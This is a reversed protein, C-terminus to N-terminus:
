TQELHRPAAEVSPLRDPRPAHHRRIGRRSDAAVVHLHRPLGLVAKRADPFHDTLFGGGNEKSFIGTFGWESDKLTGIDLIDVVLLDGPEAGEVEIPGSLYHVKSLDVVERVDSANNNYNIQGGTWDVCEVRFEDGPKCKAVMPIDYHWRNHIVDQQDAPTNIDVSILPKRTAGPKVITPYSDQRKRSRLRTGPIGRRSKTIDPIITRRMTKSYQTSTQPQIVQFPPSDCRSCHGQDQACCRCRARPHGRSHHKVVQEIVMSATARTSCSPSCRNVSLSPLSPKCTASERPPGASIDKIISPQIGETPEDLILVKPKTLLARAIALQQQQGGSLNGGKRHRMDFLVPFLAYIEDWDSKELKGKVATLMNELVTLNPFIMRGQPVFALGSAVRQHTELKSIDQDGVHITGGKIPLIGMLTKLLTTKGMGNRGVVALIEQPATKFTMDHIVQSQNYGAALNSIQIM